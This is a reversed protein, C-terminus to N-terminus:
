PMAKNTGNKGSLPSANNQRVKPHDLPTNVRTELYGQYVFYAVALLSVLGAMLYMTGSGEEDKRAKKKTAAKLDETNGGEREVQRHRQRVMSCVPGPSALSSAAPTEGTFVPPWSSVAVCCPVSRVM